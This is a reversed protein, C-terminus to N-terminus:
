IVVAPLNLWIMFAVRSSTFRKVRLDKRSLSLTMSNKYVGGDGAWGRPALLKAQVDQCGVGGHHHHHRSSSIMEKFLGLAETDPKDFM